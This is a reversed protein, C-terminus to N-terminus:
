RKDGRIAQYLIGGDASFFSYLVCTSTFATIVGQYKQLGHWAYVRSRSGKKRILGV